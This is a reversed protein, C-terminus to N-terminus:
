GGNRTAIRAPSSWALWLLALVAGATPLYFYTEGGAFWPSAHSVWVDDSILAYFPGVLNMTWATWAVMRMRRGNHVLGAAGGLWALVAGLTVIGTTYKGDTFQATSAVIGRWAFLLAALSLVVLFVFPWGHTSQREDPLGVSQSSM